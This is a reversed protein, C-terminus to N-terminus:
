EQIPRPLLDVKPPFKHAPLVPQKPPDSQLYAGGHDGPWGNCHGIEHRLIEEFQRGRRKLFDDEPIMVICAKPWVYACAHTGPPCNKRIEEWSLRQITLDGDYPNDFEPPPPFTWIVKQALSPQAQTLTALLVIVACITRM